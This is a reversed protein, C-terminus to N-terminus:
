NILLKRYGKNVFIKLLLNLRYKNHIHTVDHFIAGLIYKIGQFRRSNLLHHKAVNFLIESEVTNRLSASLQKVCDPYRAYFKKLGKYMVLPSNSNQYNVSNGEHLLYEVTHKDLRFVDFACAIRIWLIMDEVIVIDNDFRIRELIDKHICVQSPSVPNRLFYDPWPENIDKWKEYTTQKKSKIIRPSFFMARPADNTTIFHYFTSLHNPCYKDDSDLFCIYKGESNEIGNNRAASREANTQYIYKVRQDTSQIQQVMGKTLDTSGDDVIILEWDEFEQQQVSQITSTLLSARNYTPIIITFFPM